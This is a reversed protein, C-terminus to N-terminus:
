TSSHQALWFRSERKIEEVLYKSRARTEHMTELLEKDTVDETSLGLFDRFDTVDLSYCISERLALREMHEDRTEPVCWPDDPRECAGLYIHFGTEVEQYGYRARRINKERFQQTIRSQNWIVQSQDAASTEQYFTTLSTILCWAS